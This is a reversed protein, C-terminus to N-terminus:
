RDGNKEAFSARVLAGIDSDPTTAFADALMQMGREQIVVKHQEPTAVYTLDDPLVRVQAGDLGKYAVLPGEPSPLAGLLIHSAEAAMVGGSYTDIGFRDKFWVEFPRPRDPDATNADTVKFTEGSISAPRRPMGVILGGGCARSAAPDVADLTTGEPLNAVGAAGTTLLTVHSLTTGDAPLLNWLVNPARSQLVLHVPDGPLNVVLDAVQMATRKPYDPISATDTISQGLTKKHAVLGRIVAKVLWEESYAHLNAAAGGAALSVTHVQEGPQPRRLACDQPPVLISLEAPVGRAGDPPFGDVVETVIAMQDDALVIAPSLYVVGQLGPKRLAEANTGDYDKRTRKFPNLGANGSDAMDAVPIRPLPISPNPNQSLQWIGAGVILLSGFILKPDM